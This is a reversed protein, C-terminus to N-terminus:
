QGHESDDDGDHHEDHDETDHVANVGIHAGIKFVKAGVRKEDELEFWTKMDSTKRLFFTRALGQRIFVGRRDFFLTGRNAVDVDLNVRPRELRTRWREERGRLVVAFFHELDIEESGSWAIFVNLICM